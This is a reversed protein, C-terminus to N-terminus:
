YSIKKIHLQSLQFFGFPIAALMTCYLFASINTYNLSFEMLFKGHIEDYIILGIITMFIYSLNIFVKKKLSM